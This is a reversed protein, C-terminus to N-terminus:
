FFVFTDVSFFLLFVYVSDFRIFFICFGEDAKTLLNTTCSTKYNENFRLHVSDQINM